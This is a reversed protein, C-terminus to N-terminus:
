GIIQYEAGYYGGVLSWGSQSIAAEFGMADPSSRINENTNYNSEGCYGLQDYSRIVMGICSQNTPYVAVSTNPWYNSAMVDNVAPASPNTAAQFFETMFDNQYIKYGGTVSAVFVGDDIQWNFPYTYCGADIDCYQFWTTYVPSDGGHWGYAYSSAFAISPAVGVAMTGLVLTATALGIGRAASRLKM